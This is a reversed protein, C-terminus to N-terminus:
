KEAGGPREYVLTVVFMAIVDVTFLGTMVMAVVVTIQQALDLTPFQPLYGAALM